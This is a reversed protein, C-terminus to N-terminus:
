YKMDWNLLKFGNSIFKNYMLCSKSNYQKIESKHLFQKILIVNKLIYYKPFFYFFNNLMKFNKLFKKKLYCVSFKLILNLKFTWNVFSYKEYLKRFIEFSITYSYWSKNIIKKQNFFHKWFIFILSTNLHRIRKKVFSGIICASNQKRFLFYLASIHSGYNQRVKILKKSINKNICSTYIKPFIKNFNKNRKNHKIKILHKFNFKNSLHKCFYSIKLYFNNVANEQITSKRKKFIGDRLFLTFYRNNNRIIGKTIIFKGMKIYMMILFCIQKQQSFALNHIYHSNCNKLFLLYDNFAQDKKIIFELLFLLIFLAKLEFVFIYQGM